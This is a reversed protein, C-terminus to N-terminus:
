DLTWLHKRTGEPVIKKKLLHNNEKYGAGNWCQSEPLNATDSGKMEPTHCIARTMCPEYCDTRIYGGPLRASLVWYLSVSNDEHNIVISLRDSNGYYFDKAAKYKNVVDALLMEYAMTVIEKFVAQEMRRVVIAM